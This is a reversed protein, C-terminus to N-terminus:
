RRWPSTVANRPLVDTEVAYRLFGDGASAANPHVATQSTRGRVRARVVLNTADLQIDEIYEAVMKDWQNTTSDYSADRVLFPYTGFPGANSACRYTVLDVREIPSGAGYAYRLGQGASTPSTSITLTDGSRSVVRATEGRGVYIVRRTATDFRGGQGEEVHLVTAGAAVSDRLTAQPPLFASAISVTDPLSGAGQVIWPNVTMGPAWSLWDALEARPVNLGYGAMRLDRCLADAAFRVNQQLERVLVQRRYTRMHMISFVAMGLVIVGSIVMAFFMEVITFACRDPRGRKM